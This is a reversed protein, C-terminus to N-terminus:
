FRYPKSNSDQAAERAGSHPPFGTWAGWSTAPDQGRGRGSEIVYSRDRRRLTEGEGHGRGECLSEKKMRIGCCGAANLKAQARGQGLRLLGGSVHM